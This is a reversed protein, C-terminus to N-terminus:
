RGLYQRKFGGWTVGEVPVAMPDCADYGGEGVCITGRNERAVPTVRSNRDLVGSPFYVESEEIALCGHTGTALFIYGVLELAGSTLCDFSTILEGSYPNPGNLGLQNPQCGFSSGWITWDGWPAAGHNGDVAFRYILGCADDYNRLFVYVSLFEGAAVNVSPSSGESCDFEGIGADCNLPGGGIPHAHLVITTEENSAAAPAAVGILIPLLYVWRLM